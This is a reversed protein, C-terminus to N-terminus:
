VMGTIGKGPRECTM